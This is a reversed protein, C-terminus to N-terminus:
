LYKRMFNEIDYNTSKNELRQMIEAILRASQGIIEGVTGYKYNYASVYMKEYNVYIGEAGLVSLIQLDKSLQEKESDLLYPIRTEKDKYIIVM